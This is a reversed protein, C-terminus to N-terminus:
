SEEDPEWMQLRRLAEARGEPTDPLPGEADFAPDDAVDAVPTDDLHATDGDIEEVPWSEPVEDNARDDAVEILEVDSDPEDTSADEVPLEDKEEGNPAEVGYMSFLGRYADEAEPHHAQYRSYRVAMEAVEDDDDDYLLEDEDDGYEPYDDDEPVPPVDSSAIAPEPGTAVTRNTVPAPATAQRRQERPQRVPRERRELLRGIDLASPVLGEAGYRAVYLWTWVAAGVVVGFFCIWLIIAGTHDGPNILATLLTVVIVAAGASAVVAGLGEAFRSWSMRYVLDRARAPGESEADRFRLGPGFTRLFWGLVLLTAGYGTGFVIYDM